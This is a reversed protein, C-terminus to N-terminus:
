AHAYYIYNNGSANIDAGSPVTFGTSAPAGLDYDFQPNASDLKIVKDSGSVWGRTTDLTLWNGTATSNKIIVFRPQFGTTITRAYGNGTYSGVKSIGDVSAFLMAVYEYGTYNARGSQSLSFHTATPATLGFTGYANAEADTANLKMYKNWNGSDMGKHGVAWEESGDRRKIWIM